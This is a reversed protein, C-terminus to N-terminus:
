GSGIAAKSSVAARASMSPSRAASGADTEGSCAAASSRSTM